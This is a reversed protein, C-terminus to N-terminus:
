PGSCFARRRRRAAGSSGASGAKSSITTVVGGPSMRRARATFRWSAPSRAPPIM